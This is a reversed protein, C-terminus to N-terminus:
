VPGDLQAEVNLLERGEDRVVVDENTKLGQLKRGMIEVLM